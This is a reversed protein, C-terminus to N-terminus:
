SAGDESEEDANAIEELADLISSDENLAETIAGYVAWQAAQILNEPKGFDDTEQSWVRYDNACAMIDSNYIPVAGDVAEHMEENLWEQLRDRSMGSLSEKNYEAHEILAARADTVAEDFDSM